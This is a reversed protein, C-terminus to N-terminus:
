KKGGIYLTCITGDGNKDYREPQGFTELERIMKNSEKPSLNSLVKQFENSLDEVLVKLQTLKDLLEDSAVILLDNIENSIIQFPEIARKTYEVLEENYDILATNIKEQNAGAALIEKLFESYCSTLCLICNALIM